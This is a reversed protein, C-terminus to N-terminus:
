SAPSTTAPFSAHKLHHIKVAQPINTSGPEAMTVKLNRRSMVAQIVHPRMHALLLGTSRPPPCRNAIEAFGRLEQLLKLMRLKAAM